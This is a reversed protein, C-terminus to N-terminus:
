LRRHLMNRMSGEFGVEASGIVPGSPLCSVPLVSDFYTWSSPASPFGCVTSTSLLPLVM